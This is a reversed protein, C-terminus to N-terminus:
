YYYYYYLDDSLLLLLLSSSFPHFARPLIEVCLSAFIKAHNKLAWVFTFSRASEREIARLVVCSFVKKKHGTNQKHSRSIKQDEM